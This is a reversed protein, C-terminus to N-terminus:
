DSARQHHEKQVFDYICRFFIILMAGPRDCFWPVTFITSDLEQAGMLPKQQAWAKLGCEGAAALVECDIMAIVAYWDLGHEIVNRLSDIFARYAKM